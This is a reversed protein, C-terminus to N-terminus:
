NSLIQCYLKLINSNFSVFQLGIHLALNLNNIGLLRICAHGFLSTYRNSIKSLKKHLSPSSSSSAASTPTISVVFTGVSYLCGSLGIILKTSKGPM